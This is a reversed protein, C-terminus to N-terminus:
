KDRLNLKGHEFGAGKVFGVLRPIHPDVGEAPDGEFNEGAFNDGDGTGATASFASEKVEETGEIGGAGALDVEFPERKMGEVVIFKGGQAAQFNAENELKKVKEGSEGNFFVHKEGQEEGAADGGGSAVTGAIEQFGHLEGIARVMAGVLERAALELAGGDSTGEDMTGGNKQGIFGGTIEIGGGAGEDDLKECLEGTGFFGGNDEDGVAFEDSGRGVAPDGEDITADLELEQVPERGETDEERMAHAIKKPM